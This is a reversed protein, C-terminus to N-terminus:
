TPNCFPEHNKDLYKFVQFAGRLVETQIYFFVTIQVSSIVLPSYKKYQNVIIGALGYNYILQSIVVSNKAALGSSKKKEGIPTYQM